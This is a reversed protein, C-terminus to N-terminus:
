PEAVSVVKVPIDVTNCGAARKQGFNSDASVPQYDSTFQFQSDCLVSTIKATLKGTVPFADYLLGGATDLLPSCTDIVLNVHYSEM